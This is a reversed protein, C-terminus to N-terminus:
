WVGEGLKWRVWVEHEKRSLQGSKSMSKACFIWASDGVQDGRFQSVKCIIDDAPLIVNCKDYVWQSPPAIRKDACKVRAKYVGSTSDAWVFQRQGNYFNCQCNLLLARAGDVFRVEKLTDYSLIEFRLQLCAYKNKISIQFWLFCSAWKFWCFMWCQDFTQKSFSVGERRPILFILRPFFNGLLVLILAQVLRCM